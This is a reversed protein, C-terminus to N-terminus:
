ILAFTVKRALVWFCSAGRTSTGFFARSPSLLGFETHTTRLPRATRVGTVVPRSNWSPTSTFDPSLPPSVTITTGGGFIRSPWSTVACCAHAGGKLYTLNGPENEQIVELTAVLSTIRFPRLRRVIHSRM